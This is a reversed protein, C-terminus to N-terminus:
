LQGIKRGKKREMRCVEEWWSGGRLEHGHASGTLEKANGVSNKVERDTKHRGNISRIGQVKERSNREEGEGSFDRWTIDM